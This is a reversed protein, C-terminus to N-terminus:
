QPQWDDPGVEVYTKGKLSMPPRPTFGKPKETATAAPAASGKRYSQVTKNVSDELDKIVTDTGAIGDKAGSSGPLAYIGTKGLTGEEIHTSHDSAGMSTVSAVASVAAQHLRERRATAEPTYVNGNEALDARYQKLKELANMKSQYGAVFQPVARATPLKLDTGDNLQIIRDEEGAKAKEGAAQGKEREVFAADVQNKWVKEPLGAKAAAAVIESRKAGNEAMRVLEVAPDTGGRAPGGAGARGPVFSTGTSVEVDQIKGAKQQAEAIKQDWNAHVEAGANAAAQPGLAAIQSDYFKGLHEYTRIRLAQTALVDQQAQKALQDNYGDQLAVQHYRAEIEASHQKQARDVQADILGLTQIGLSAAGGWDRGRGSPGANRVSLTGIVGVLGLAAELAQTVGFMPPKSKADQQLQAWQVAREKAIEARRDAEAQAQAQADIDDRRQQDAIAAAKQADIGARQQGLEGQQDGAAQQAKLAATEGANGEQSMASPLVQKVTQEGKVAHTGAPVAPPAPAVPPPALAPPPAGPIPTQPIPPAGPIPPPGVPPEVRDGPMEAPGATGAPLEPGSAVPPLGQSLRRIDEDSPQEAM